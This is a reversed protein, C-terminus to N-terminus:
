ALAQDAAKLNALAADKNGGELAKVAEELNMKVQEFEGSIAQQAASLNALAADKNGGELAKVAEELNM